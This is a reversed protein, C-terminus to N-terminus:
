DEPQHRRAPQRAPAAAARAAHRGQRAAGPGARGRVRVAGLVAQMHM